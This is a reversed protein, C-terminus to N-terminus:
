YFLLFFLCLFCIRIITIISTIFIVITIIFVEVSVVLFEEFVTFCGLVSWLCSWFCRLFVYLFVLFVDWFCRLFVLFCWVVGFFCRLFMEFVGFVVSFVFVEQTKGVAGTCYGQTESLGALDLATTGPLRQLGRSRRHLWVSFVPFVGPSLSCFRTKGPLFGSFLSSFM